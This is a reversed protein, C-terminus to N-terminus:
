VKDPRYDIQQREHQQCGGDSQEAGAQCGAQARDGRERADAPDHEPGNALSPQLRDSHEYVEHPWRRSFCMWQEPNARVWSEFSRFLRATMQRAQDAAPAAPDEPRIPACVTIRFRAHPLREARIPILDCGNRVALRAAATNVRMPQGFFEVLEGTDSRTDTILAVIGDQKLARSLGRMCGDRSIFRMPLGARWKDFLRKLYPNEEPAYVTTVPLDYRAAVFSALQWAGIHGGVLVAPRNRYNRLDMGPETVFEFRRELERGIRDALLLDVAARGLNGCVARTLREIEAEERDPFAVKLNLRITKAFQLVPKLRRFVSDAFGYARETSRMCILRALSRIIVAEVLWIFRRLAPLRDMLTESFFFHKKAM